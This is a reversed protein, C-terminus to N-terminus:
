ALQAKREKAIRLEDDVEAIDVDLNNRKSVLSNRKRELAKITTDIAHERASM